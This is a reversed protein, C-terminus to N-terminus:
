GEVRSGLFIRFLQKRPSVAAEDLEHSVVIIRCLHSRRGAFLLRLIALCLFTCIALHRVTLAISCSDGSM